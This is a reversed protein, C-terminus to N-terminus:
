NVKPRAIMFYAGGLVLGYVVHSILFMMNHYDFANGYQLPLGFVLPRITLAGLVWWILGQLLGFGLASVISNIKRGFWWVFLIGIFASYILNVIWEVSISEKGIMKAVLPTLGQIAMVIGFAVGAIIGAIIGSIFKKNNLM